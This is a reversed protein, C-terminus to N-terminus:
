LDNVSTELQHVTGCVAAANESSRRQEEQLVCLRDNVKTMYLRLTIMGNRLFCLPESMVATDTGREEAFKDLAASVRQRHEHLDSDIGVQHMRFEASIARRM